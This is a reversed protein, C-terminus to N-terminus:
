KKKKKNVNHKKINNKKLKFKKIRTKKFVSMLILFFINNVPHKLFNFNGPIKYLVPNQNFFRSNLSILPIQLKKSEQIVKNEQPEDFLVILCPRTNINLLKLTNKKLNTKLNKTIPIKNTIIGSVWINKTLFIHKTKKLISKFQKQISTPVGIFIIKKNNIHYKYIINLSKKLYFETTFSNVRNETNKYNKSKILQLKTLKIHNTKINKIKM